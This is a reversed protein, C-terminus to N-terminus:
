KLLTMKKVSVFTKGDADRAVLRYLYVGSNLSSGDFLIRRVGLDMPREDILTAVETGLLTFVKLSVISPHVLDFEIATTSRFLM